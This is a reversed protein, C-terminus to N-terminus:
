YGNLLDLSSFITNGHGLTILLDSLAPLPYRDDENGESVKRFDIVPEFHGDKKSVLFLPSNWPSRSHQVAGQKLMDKIQEDLFQIQSHQLRYAPIYVLKTESKLTIHHEGEDAAGLSEGPLAIAESYKHLLTFFHIWM